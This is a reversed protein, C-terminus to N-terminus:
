FSPPDPAHRRVVPVPPHAPPHHKRMRLDLGIRQRYTVVGLGDLCETEIVDQNVVVDRTEVSLDMAGESLLGLAIAGRRGLGVIQDVREM